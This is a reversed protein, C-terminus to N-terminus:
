TESYGVLWANFWALQTIDSLSPAYYYVSGMSSSSNAIRSINKSIKKSAANSNAASDMPARMKRPTAHYKICRLELVKAPTYQNCTRPRLRLHVLGGRRGVDEPEDNGPEPRLTTILGTRAPMPIDITPEVSRVRFLFAICISLKPYPKANANPIARTRKKKALHVYLEVQSIFASFRVHSIGARCM